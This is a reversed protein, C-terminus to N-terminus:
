DSNLLPLSVQTQGKTGILAESLSGGVMLIQMRKAIGTSGGLVLCIAM